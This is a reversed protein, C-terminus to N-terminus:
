GGGKMAKWERQLEKYRLLNDALTKSNESVAKNVDGFMQTATRIKPTGGFLQSFFNGIEQRIRDRAYNGRGLANAVICDVQAVTEM